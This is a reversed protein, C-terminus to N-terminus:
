CGHGPLPDKLACISQKCKEGDPHAGFCTPEHMSPFIMKLEPCVQLLTERTTWNLNAQIGSLLLPAAEGRVGGFAMTTNRDAIKYSNEDKLMSHIFYQYDLEDNPTHQKLIKLMASRHRFSHTSGDGAKGWMRGWPAGVYDFGFFDEIKVQSNACLAGNGSFVLVNEAIVSEWLWTSKMIEKPKSKTMAKPLPTWIVRQNSRRIQELGPHLPLVDKKLWDENSIVQVAWTPPINSLVNHLMLTYRRHFWKPARLMVTLAVGDYHHNKSDQNFAVGNLLDQMSNESSSVMLFKESQVQQQQRQADLIFTFLLWQLVFLLALVGSVSKWFSASAKNKM